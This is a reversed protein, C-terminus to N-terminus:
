GTVATPSLGLSQGTTMKATVRLTSLDQNYAHKLMQYISQFSKNIDQANM